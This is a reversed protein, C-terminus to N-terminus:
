SRRSEVPDGGAAAGLFARMRGLWGQGSRLVGDGSPQAQIVHLAEDGVGDVDKARRRLRRGRSPFGRTAQNYMVKQRLAFTTGCSEAMLHRPTVSEADLELGSRLRLESREAQLGLWWKCTFLLLM